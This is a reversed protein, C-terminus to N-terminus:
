HGDCTVMLSYILNEGLKTNNQLDKPKASHVMIKKDNGNYSPESGKSVIVVRQVSLINELKDLWDQKRDNSHLLIVVQENVQFNKLDNETGERISLYKYEKLHQFYSNDNNMYADHDLVIIPYCKTDNVRAEKTINAPKQSYSEKSTSATQVASTQSLGNDQKESLFDKESSWIIELCINNSERKQIVAFYRKCPLTCLYNSTLSGSRNPRGLVLLYAFDETAAPPKLLIWSDDSLDNIFPVVGLAHKMLNQFIGLFNGVNRGVIGYKVTSDLCDYLNGRDKEKDYFEYGLEISYKKLTGSDININVSMIVKEDGQTKDKLSEGELKRKLYSRITVIFDLIAHQAFPTDSPHLPADGTSSAEAAICYFGKAAIYVPANYWKSGFNKFPSFCVRKIAQLPSSNNYFVIDDIKDEIEGKEIKLIKKLLIINKDDLGRERISRMISKTIQIIAAFTQAPKLKSEMGFICCLLYCYTCSYQEHKKKDYLHDHETKLSIYDSVHIADDQDQFIHALLKHLKFIHEDPKNLISQMEQAEAQVKSFADTLADLPKQILMLRTRLAKEESERTKDKITQELQKRLCPQGLINLAIKLTSIRWLLLEPINENNLSVDSNLWDIEEKPVKLFGSWVAGHERMHDKVELDVPDLPTSFFILTSVELEEPTSMAQLIFVDCPFTENGKLKETGMFEKQTSLLIFNDKEIPRRTALLNDRGLFNFAPIDKLSFPHDAKKAAENNLEVLYRAFVERYSHLVNLDETSIVNESSLSCNPPTQSCKNHSQVKSIASQLLGDGKEELKRIRKCNICRDAEPFVISNIRDRLWLQEVHSETDVFLIWAEQIGLNETFFRNVRSFRLFADVHNIHSFTTVGYGTKLFKYFNTINELDVANVETGVKDFVKTLESKETFGLDSINAPLTSVRLLQSLILNTEQYQNVDVPEIM